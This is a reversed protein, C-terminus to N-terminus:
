PEGASKAIWSFSTEWVRKGTVLIQAWNHVSWAQSSNGTQKQQDKNKYFGAQVSLQKGWIERPGIKEKGRYMWVHGRKTEYITWTGKDSILAYKDGLLCIELIWKERESIGLLLVWIEKTEWVIQLSANEQVRNYIFLYVFGKPSVTLRRQVLFLVERSLYCRCGVGAPPEWYSAEAKHDPYFHSREGESSAEGPLRTESCKPAPQNLVQASHTFILM